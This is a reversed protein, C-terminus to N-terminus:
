NVILRVMHTAHLEAIRLARQHEGQDLWMRVADEPAAARLYAAEALEPQEAALAAAEHRAVERRSVGGGVESLESAIDWSFIPIESIQTAESYVRPRPQQDMYFHCYRQAQLAWRAGVAALGRAALMRAAAAPPLTAAWQLAVQHQAAAPGHARAVREACEWQGSSKYMQIASKWEGIMCSLFM